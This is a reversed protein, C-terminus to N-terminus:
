RRPRVESSEFRLRLSVLKQLSAAPIGLHQSWALQIDRSYRGHWLARYSRVTPLNMALHTVSPPIFNSRLVCDAVAEGKWSSAIICLRQISDWSSRENSKGATELSAAFRDPCSSTPTNLIVSQWRGPAMKLFKALAPNSFLCERKLCVPAGTRKDVGGSRHELLVHNM